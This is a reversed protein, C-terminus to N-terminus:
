GPFALVGHWLGGKFFELKHQGFERMATMMGETSFHTVHVDNDFFPTGQRKPDPDQLFHWKDRDLFPVSIFIHAKNRSAAKCLNEMLPRPQEMHELVMISTYLDAPETPTEATWMESRADVKNQERAYETAISNVDYGSAKMGRSGAVKLITGIGCGIDILSRPTVGRAALRDFLENGAKTNREAVSLGWDLDRRLQVENERYGGPNWFSRCDLCCYLGVDKRTRM